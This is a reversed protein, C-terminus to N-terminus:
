RPDPVGKGLSPCWNTPRTCMKRLVPAGNGLSPYGSVSPRSVTKRHDPVCNGGSPCGKVSPLPPPGKGISLICKGVSPYGETHSAHGGKRLSPGGKGISPYGTKSPRTGRQGISQYGRQSPRRGREKSFHPLGTTRWSFSTGSAVYVDDLHPLRVQVAGNPRTVEISRVLNVSDRLMRAVSLTALHLTGRVWM